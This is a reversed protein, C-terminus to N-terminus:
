NIYRSKTLVLAYSPSVHRQLLKCLSEEASLLYYNSYMLTQVLGQQCQKMFSRTLGLRIARKTIEKERQERNIRMRVFAVIFGLVVIGIISAVGFSLYRNEFFYMKLIPWTLATSFILCLSWNNLLSVFCPDCQIINSKISWSQSCSKITLNLCRLLRM